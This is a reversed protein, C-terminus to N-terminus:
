DPSDGLKELLTGLSDLLSDPDDVDSADGFDGEAADHGADSDDVHRQVRYEAESRLEEVDERDLRLHRKRRWAAFPLYESPDLWIGACAVCLDIEIREVKRLLM